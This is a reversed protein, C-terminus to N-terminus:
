PYSATVYGAAFDGWLVGGSPAPYYQVEGIAATPEGLSQWMRAGPMLRYENGVVPDGSIIASALVAGDSALAFVTAPLAFTGKVSTSTFNLGPESQWTQGGNFSCSLTNPQLDRPNLEDNGVACIRWPQNAVPAQVLTETGQTALGPVNVRTWHAGADSSAWFASGGKTLLAGNSPNLWFYSNNNDPFESVKDLIPRWTRMQDRSIALEPIDQEGEAVLLHGYIVGNLTAIQSVSYPKPPSLTRWTAGGDFTVHNKFFAIVPSAGKPEWITAVVMTTPQLGDVTIFCQNADEALAIDGAHTWHVARDRTVSLTVHRESVVQCAYAIDGDGPAIAFVKMQPFTTPRWDLHIGSTPTVTAHARLPVHTHVPQGCAALVLLALALCGVTLSNWRTIRSCSRGASRLKRLPWIM